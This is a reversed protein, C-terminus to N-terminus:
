TTDARITDVNWVARGYSIGTSTDEAYAYVQVEGSDKDGENTLFIDITVVARNESARTNKDEIIQPYIHHIRLDVSKEAPGESEEEPAFAYWAVLGLAISMVVVSAVLWAAPVRKGLIRKRGKSRTM